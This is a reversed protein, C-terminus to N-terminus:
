PESKERATALPKQLANELQHAASNRQFKALALNKEAAIQELKAFSFELKDIEGAALKKEIRQTNAAQQANLSQQQSFNQQAETLKAHNTLVEAIVSQQLAEFQAAEVERLQTAEAIAVKNKNLLTLLGSLGLSWVHNGFEYAYAPSITIDPYQRAIELKLKTEATAYQILAIRIDLRNLLAASHTNELSLQASIPNLYDDYSQLSMRTVTPLPLGLHNALESLLVTQQQNAAQLDARTVQEQLKAHSLEINSSMGLSVRKQQMAVIQTKLTLEQTLLQILQQNFQTNILSQVALHRLQWATQAIELQAIHSLHQANEIRLNRKNATEIPMDISLGLAYPSIDQNANNSHAIQSNLSPMAKETAAQENVQAARWKARAVELNPHFFLACYALEDVGWRQIPFPQKNYGEQHLYEGFAPSDPNKSEIKASIEATNIPKAQYSQVSCANLMILTLVAYSGLRITTRILM